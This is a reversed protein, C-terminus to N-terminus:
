EDKRTRREKGHMERNHNAWKHDTLQQETPYVKDCPTGDAKTLNCKFKLSDQYEIHEEKFSDTHHYVNCEKCFTLELECEECLKSNMLSKETVSQKM